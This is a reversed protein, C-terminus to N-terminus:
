FDDIRWVTTPLRDTSILTTTGDNDNKLISVSFGQSQIDIKYFDIVLEKRNVAKLMMMVDDLTPKKFKKSLEKEMNKNSKSLRHFFKFVYSERREKTDINKVLSPNGSILIREVDEGDFIYAIVPYPDDNFQPFIQSTAVFSLFISFLTIIKM